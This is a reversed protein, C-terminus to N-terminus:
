VNTEGMMLKVIEHVRDRYLPGIEGLTQMFDDEQLDMLFNNIAVRMTMAQGISLTTGNITITPETFKPM